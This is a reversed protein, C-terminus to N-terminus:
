AEAGRFRKAGVRAIISFFFIAAACLIIASGSPVPIDFIVPLLVGVICSALSFTLSLFFFGKVSRCINRASAAPILLLAEVLVAGIIKVSAVTILTVMLVFVYDLLIVKVGRVRALSQNFSAFLMRNFYPIGLAACLVAIVLLINMDMDNVTLISGFLVNDLIHINVQTTVYLLLASGVALSISLFVGIMTDSSMKTRNRTYNM